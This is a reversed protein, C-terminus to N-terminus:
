LDDFDWDLVITSQVLDISKIVRDPIYPVLIRTPKKQNDQFSQNSTVVLVDNAGTEFIDAIVGRHAGTIDFVTLGLLQRWYVEDNSLAKLQALPLYIPTHTLRQAQNRDLISSLTVAFGKSHPQWYKPTISYVQLHAGSNDM